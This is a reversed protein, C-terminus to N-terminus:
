VVNGYNYYANADYTSISKNDVDDSKTDLVKDNNLLTQIATDLATGSAISSSISSTNSATKTAHTKLNSGNITIDVAKSSPM